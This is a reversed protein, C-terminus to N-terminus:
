GTARARKESKHLVLPSVKKESELTVHSWNEGTRIRHLQMYSIGYQKAILKLKTKDKGESRRKLRMKILRVQNETLKAKTAREGRLTPPPVRNPSKTTHAFAEKKTLWRLNAVHNNTRVHNLHVVYCHENSPKELFHEAVLRHFLKGVRKGNRLNFTLMKVGQKNLGNIYIATTKGAPYRRIRGYNSVEYSSISQGEKLVVKKWIEGAYSDIVKTM